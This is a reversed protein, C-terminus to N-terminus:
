SVQRVEEVNEEENRKADDITNPQIGGVGGERKM